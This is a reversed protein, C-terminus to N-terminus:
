HGAAPEADLEPYHRFIGKENFPIRRKSALYAAVRPRSAVREALTLTRPAKRAAHDFAQPFAYRLGSVVQFLSLDAYSLEDGVLWDRAGLTTEFHRLYKPMRARVFHDARRSAEKRQDEYYLNTAVPHHTEHVEAVLDAITLQVQQCAVRGAEESSVLGLRPGLVQLILATQAVWLAGVHMIPPAFPTTVGKGGELARLIAKTGGGEKEPLRAVDRYSAGGEELALRIFEGRGQIEPWYYLDM